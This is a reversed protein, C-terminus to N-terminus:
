RCHVSLSPLFMVNSEMTPHQLFLCQMDGQRKAYAPHRWLLGDFDVQRQPGITMKYVRNYCERSVVELNVLGLHRALKTLSIELALKGWLDNTAATEQICMDNPFIGHNANFPSTYRLRFSRNNSASSPSARGLLAQHVAVISLISERAAPDREVLWPVYAQSGALRTQNVTNVLVARLTTNTTVEIEMTQMEPEIMPNDPLVRQTAEEMIMPQDILPLSHEHSQRRRRPILIRQRRIPLDPFFRRALRLREEASNNTTAATTM